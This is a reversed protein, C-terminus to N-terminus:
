RKGEVMGRGQAKGGGVVKRGAPKRGAPKRGEFARVVLGAVAFVLALLDVVHVGWWWHQVGLGCTALELVWEGRAGLRADFWASLFGAHGGFDGMMSRLTIERLRPTATPLVRPGLSPYKHPPHPIRLTSWSPEPPGQPPAADTDSLEEADSTTNDWIPSAFRESNPCSLPLEMDEVDVEDDPCSATGAQSIYHLVDCGEHDHGNIIVGSRGQGGGEAQENGSLGFIGELLAKSAHESLMNQEKIGSGSTFFDFFPSDVCVGPEKHLPIHTLLIIAHTKETVPRSTTIIHNMFDYTARQLDSSFAPTDLNMSNLIVLRLAPPAKSTDRVATPLTFMIDWNAMGFAREFREMRNEDLDGAYGVDHNGAVNIVRNEWRKDGALVELAGGQMVADPVREMGRFVIGWYREARREFEEDSIWQSGLLDGLVVVHTPEAWWRLSRVIHALYLDNGWLDIRKRLGKLWKLLDPGVGKLAHSIFRQRRHWSGAHRVDDVLYELSTFIRADPKPLSSDGELQPDGLALLRFPAPSGPSNSPTPFDCGHFFPYLYLWSTAIFCVPALFFAICLLFRSLQM